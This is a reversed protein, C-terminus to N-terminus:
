GTSAGSVLLSLYPDTEFVSPSGADAAGAAYVLSFIYQGYAFGSTNVGVVGGFPYANGVIGNQENNSSTNASDLQYLGATAPTASYANVGPPVFNINLQPLSVSADFIRSRMEGDLFSAVYAGTTSNATRLADASLLNAPSGAAGFVQANSYVTYTTTM